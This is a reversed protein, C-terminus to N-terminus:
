VVSKRDRALQGFFDVMYEYFADFNSIKFHIQLQLRSLALWQRLVEGRLLGQAAAVEQLGHAALRRSFDPLQEPKAVAPLHTSFNFRVGRIGAGALRALEDDTQFETGPKVERPRYRALTTLGGLNMLVSGDGDFVVVPREPASRKKTTPKTSPKKTPM